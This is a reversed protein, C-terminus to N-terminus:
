SGSLDVEALLGEEVADLHDMMAAAAAASDGKEIAAAILKHQRLYLEQHDGRSRTRQKLERWMRQKMVDAVRTFLMHLLPNRSAIAVAIHFGRDVEDPDEGAEILRGQERVSDKMVRLDRVHRNLAAYRASVPELARRAVMIDLPSEEGLVAASTRLEIRKSLAGDAVYTGARTRVDLVGSYDLIRIAERLTGRSVGIQAALERESPLLAGPVLAGSRIRDLLADITVERVSRSEDLKVSIDAAVADDRM